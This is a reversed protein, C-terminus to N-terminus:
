LLKEFVNLAREVIQDMNYYKYETLRGLFIVNKEKNSLNLYKNYLEFNNNTPIPYYPDGENTPYETIITTHSINKNPYIRSFDTQRTYLTQPESYNITTQPLANEIRNNMFTFNISRYPLEGYIFDYFRDIRGTFVIKNFKIDNKISFFDTNPAFTINKHNIMNKFMETYGHKPMFQFKDTFYRDDTNLRVPIRGCVQKDLQNPYLGWQKKTFHYFFKKYLDEGVTSLILDESTNIGITKQGVKSYFEAVEEETQLRMNYLKNITTRNIPMPYYEGELYALVRHEYLYWETYNSLYDFVKKCNTHFLHPGYKHILLGNEDVYDFSNGGIHGRNDILLVKKNLKSAIREAMVIGAYGAGAILYDYM